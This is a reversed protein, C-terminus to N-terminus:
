LTLGSRWFTQSIIEIKVDIEASSKKDNQLKHSLNNQFIDGAASQLKMLKIRTAFDLHRFTM